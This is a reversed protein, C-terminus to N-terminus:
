KHIGTRTTRTRANENAYIKPVPYGGLHGQITVIPMNYKYFNLQKRQTLPVEVCSPLILSGCITCTAGYVFKRRSINNLFSM